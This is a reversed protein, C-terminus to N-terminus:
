VIWSNQLWQHINDTNDRYFMCWMAGNGSHTILHKCKSLCLVSAFYASGHNTKKDSPITFHVCPGNKGVRDVEDLVIVNENFEQTFRTVFDNEDTQVLFQIEPNNHQIEKAKQIYDEYDALPTETWKDTGRHYVACLNNYDLQYKDTYSTVLKVITSSPSYYKIIFPTIEKYNIKRYDSFQDEEPENTIRVSAQYAIDVGASEDFYYKTPDTDESIYYTYQKSRDLIEPLKRNVNFFDLIHLLGVTSCSFFGASHTIQLTNM